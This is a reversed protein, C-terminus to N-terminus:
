AVNCGEVMKLLINRLSEEEPGANSSLPPFGSEERLINLSREDLQYHNTDRRSTTYAELLEIPVSIAERNVYGEKKMCLNNILELQVGPHEDTPRKPFISLYKQRIEPNRIRENLDRGDFSTMNCVFVKLEQSNSGDELDVIVCPHNCFGRKLGKATYTATLEPTIPYLTSDGPLLRLWYLGGLIMDDKSLSM